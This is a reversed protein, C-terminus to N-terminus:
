INFCGANSTLSAVRDTTRPDLSALAANHLIVTHFFCFGNAMNATLSDSMSHNSCNREENRTTRAILPFSFPVDPFSLLEVNQFLKNSRSPRNCQQSKYCKRPVTVDLTHMANSGPLDKTNVNRHVSPSLPRESATANAKTVSGHSEPRCNSVAVPVFDSLYLRITNM